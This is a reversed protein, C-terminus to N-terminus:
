VPPSAIPFPNHLDVSPPLEHSFIKPPLDSESSTKLLMIFSIFIVEFDSSFGIKKLLDANPGFKGPGGSLYRSSLITIALGKSPQEVSDM